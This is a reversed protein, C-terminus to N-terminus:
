AERLLRGRNANKRKNRNRKEVCIVCRVGGIATNGCDYCKGERNRRIKLRRKRAKEDEPNKYPM